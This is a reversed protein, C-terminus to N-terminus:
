MGSCVSIGILVAIALIVFSTVVMKLGSQRVAKDDNFLQIVGVLLLIILIVPILILLM